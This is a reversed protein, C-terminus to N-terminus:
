KFKILKAGNAKKKRAGAPMGPIMNAPMRGSFEKKEAAPKNSNNQAPKNNNNRKKNSNNNKNRGGSSNNSSSSTQRQGADVDTNKSASAVSQRKVRGTTAAPKEAPKTSETKKNDKNAAQKRSEEAQRKIEEAIKADKVKREALGKDFAEKTKSHEALEKDIKTKFDDDSMGDPKTQSTITNQKKVYGERFNKIDESYDKVGSASKEAYVEGKKEQVYKSQQYGPDAQKLEKEYKKSQRDDKKKKDAAKKAAEKDEKRKTNLAKAKESREQITTKYTKEDVVKGKFYHEGAVGKEGTGEGTYNKAKNRSQANKFNLKAQKGQPGEGVVDKVYTIIKNARSEKAAETMGEKVAKQRSPLVPNVTNTAAESEQKKYGKYSKKTGRILTNIGTAGTIDKIANGLRSMVDVSGKNVIDGATDYISRATAPGYKLINAFGKLRRGLKTTANSSILEGVAPLGMSISYEAGKSGQYLGKNEKTKKDEKKEEKKSAIKITAKKEEPKKEEASESFFPTKSGTAKSRLTDPAGNKGKLTDSGEDYKILKSGKKYPKANADPKKMLLPMITGAAQTIDGGNKDMFAGAKDKFTLPAATIGAEYKKIKGKM